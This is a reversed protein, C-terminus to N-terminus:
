GRLEIFLNVLGLIEQVFIEWLLTTVVEDVSKLLDYDFALLVLVVLFGHLPEKVGSLIVGAVGLSDGVVTGVRSLVNSLVWGVVLGSKM